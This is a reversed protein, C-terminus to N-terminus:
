GIKVVRGAAETPNREDNRVLELTAGADGGAAGVAAHLAPTARAHFVGDGTVVGEEVAARVAAIADDLLPTTRKQEM